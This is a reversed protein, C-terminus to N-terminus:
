DAVAKPDPSRLFYDVFELRQSFFRDFAHKWQLQYLVLVKEKLVQLLVILLQHEQLEFQNLAPKFLKISEPHRGKGAKFHLLEHERREVQGTEFLLLLDRKFALEAVRHGLVAHFGRRLFVREFDLELVHALLLVFFIDLGSFGKFLEPFLLGPSFVFPLDNLLPTLLLLLQLLCLFLSPALEFQLLFLSGFYDLSQILWFGLGFGFLGFSFVVRNM